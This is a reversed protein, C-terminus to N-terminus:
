INLPIDILIGPVLDGANIDNVKCIMYIAERIETDPSKYRQAIDWMTDGAVIEIQAKSTEDIAIADNFGLFTNTATVFCITLLAIFITFRFKSKMRYKHNTKIM